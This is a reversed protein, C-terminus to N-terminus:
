LRYNLIKCNQFLIYGFAKIRIKLSNYLYFLLSLLSWYIGFNKWVISLTESIMYRSSIGGPSAYGIFSDSFKFETGQKYLRQNFDFDAYVKYNLDFPPFPHLSKNVLLAQHHLTNYLKLHFDVKSLFVKAGIDVKGYIVECFQYQEMNDPLSVIADGAGLFLIYSDNKAKLWAKNMADYVGNDNESVWCTIRNEYKKIIEVTGDTSGGDIVIYDIDPYSQALVSNITKEIHEVSNLVVTIITIKPQKKSIM